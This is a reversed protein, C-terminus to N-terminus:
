GTTASSPSRFIFLTSTVLGSTPDSLATSVSFLSCFTFLISTILLPGTTGLLGM